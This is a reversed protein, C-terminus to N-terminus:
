PIIVTLLISLPPFIFKLLELFFLVKAATMTIMNTAEMTNDTKM